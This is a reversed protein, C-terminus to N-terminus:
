PHSRIPRYVHIATGSPFTRAEILNLRLPESLAGFLGTGHGIVVPHIVLRYEDILGNRILADVFTAGGHALIVGGSERKLREIDEVLDGSAIRSEAWDARDLTKSFIVKPIENMVDAYVGTSRPWVSAMAEYSVRGMIHTGAQRLSAAKWAVVEDDEPPLGWDEYGKSGHIFGDLTLGFQLVVPRVGFRGTMTGSPYGDITSNKVSRVAL